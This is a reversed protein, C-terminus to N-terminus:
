ATQDAHLHAADIVALESLEADVARKVVVPAEVRQGCVREWVDESARASPDGSVARARSVDVRTVAHPELEARGGAGARASPHGGVAALDGEPQESHVRHPDAVAL